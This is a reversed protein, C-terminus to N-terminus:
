KGALEPEWPVMTGNSDYLAEAGKYWRRMTAGEVAIRVNQIVQKMGYLMLQDIRDINRQLTNDERLETIVEDHIFNVMKFRERYLYWLAMKAGDAALGQFVYNCASCYTANRRVRGNVTQAVYMQDGTDPDSHIIDPDPSLHYEMEPFSSIWIAKLKRCTEEELQVDYGMAFTQFKSIGLGGPFGFNCAKAMQRYDIGDTESGNFADRIQHGFWLHLDAGDNILDKMRSEGYKLFCTEALACLELQSYDCAYLVHGPPAIYMGRLGEKRPLNQINPKSSSTRGTKVLPSFKSHVRGDVAILSEKMYTSVMKDAHKMEKYHTLFPYADGPFAEFVEDKTSVKGTPTRPLTIGLRPELSEMITTMVKASGKGPYYGWFSLLELRENKKENFKAALTRLYNLDVLLGNRSIYSLSMYGLLHINETPYAHPMSMQLQMTAAPDAAAYRIHRDTLTMGPYFTLRIEPDKPLELGLKRKLAYDLASKGSFSGSALQDLIFRIETDIIRVGELLAMLPERMGERDIGMVHLDFPANHFILRLEPNDLMLLNYEDMDEAKIIHITRTTHCCVQQIAPVVPKGPVLAETETDVALLPGTLVPMGREWLVVTYEYGGVNIDM